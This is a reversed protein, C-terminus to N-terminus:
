IPKLLEPCTPMTVERKIEGREWENGFMGCVREREREGKGDRERECGRM